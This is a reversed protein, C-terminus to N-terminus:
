ASMGPRGRTAVKGAKAASLTKDAKRAEAAKVKKQSIPISGIDIKVKTAARKEVEDEAQKIIDPSTALLSNAAATIDRSEVYSVKVGSRKLEEKVLNRAIRRAETMVERPVKDGKTAGGMIRIKGAYMSELTTEAVEMAKAQLEEPKPYTAKTVQTQGRNLIVKFGQVLAERYVHIPIKGTDIELFDKGKVVPIRLIEGEEQLGTETDVETVDTM